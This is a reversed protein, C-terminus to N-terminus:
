WDAIAPPVSLSSGSAKRSRRTDDCTRKKENARDGVAKLKGRRKKGAVLRPLPEWAVYRPLGRDERIRRKRWFGLLGSIAHHDAGEHWVTLRRDDSFGLEHLVRAADCIPQGSSTVIQKDGFLVDFRSRGRATLVVNLATGGLVTAPAPPKSLSPSSRSTPSARGSDSQNHSHEGAVTMKRESRPESGDLLGLRKM